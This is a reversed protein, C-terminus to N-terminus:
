VQFRFYKLTCLKGFDNMSEQIIKMLLRNVGLINGVEHCPLFNLSVTIGLSRRKSLYLQNAVDVIKDHSKNRFNNELGYIVGYDRSLIQSM